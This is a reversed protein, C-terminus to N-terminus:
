KIVKLFYIDYKYRRIEAIKFGENKLMKVINGKYNDYGEEFITAFWPGLAFFRNKPKGFDILLFIGGKKLVRYIEKITATKIETNLHHFVLSNYVVDFYNDKFLLKQILSKKINIELNNEKFKNNAIKLIRPDADITYLNVKPNKLKLDVALSGTGCGADLVNISKNPIKSNNIIFKRYDEGLGIISCGLDFLPTLFDFKAAPIIKEKNDKTKNM